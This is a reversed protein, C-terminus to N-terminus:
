LGVRAIQNFSPQQETSRVPLEPLRAALPGSPPVFNTTYRAIGKTIRLDQLYGNFFDSPTMNKRAGILLAETSNFLSKTSVDFTSGQQVGDLFLRLSSGQRTVVVFYWTNLSPSWATNCDTLTASTGGETFAFRFGLTTHWQFIFSLQTNGDTMQAVFSRASTLNLFYVWLEITFDDAAFHWDASDALELYDGTGDFYGSGQGWKSAATKTVANYRTVTKLSPSVDVFSTGNNVGTMPLHLVVSDRFLDGSVPFFM